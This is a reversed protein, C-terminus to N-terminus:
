AIQNLKLAVRDDQHGVSGSAIIQGGVALPVARAVAVPLVMGPALGAATRLPIRMDVLTATLPLPVEAFPAATPDAAMASPTRRPVDALWTPLAAEPVSLAILWPPRRAEKVTLTLGASAEARLPLGAMNQARLRIAFRDAPIASAEGLAALFITELREVLMRGSPPFSSPATRPDEGPGGFARDVLRLVAPGEIGLHAVGDIGEAAILSAAVLGPMPTAEASVEVEPATGNLLSALRPALAKSLREGLALWHPVLEAPDRERPFLEGCHQAARREAIFRHLSQSM